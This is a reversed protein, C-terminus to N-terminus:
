MQWHFIGGFSKKIEPIIQSAVVNTVLTSKIVRDSNERFEDVAVVDEDQGGGPSVKL